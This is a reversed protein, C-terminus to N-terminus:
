GTKQSDFRFYNKIDDYTIIMSGEQLIRADVM